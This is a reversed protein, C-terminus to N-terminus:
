RPESALVEVLIDRQVERAWGGADHVRGLEALQVFRVRGGRVKKDGRTRDLVRSPDMAGPLATPLEMAELIRGLRDATGPTTIGSAEGFRAELAMGIAVADGHPIEFESEAEVAHGITHGFNLIERLGSEKEDRSVVGAKIEVSRRVAWASADARGALLDSAKEHLGDLYDVDLIAGHKVAEALGQSRERRPLTELCEPDVVVRAPPHFAGVLNKGTPVDVGTKGGVSADIMAVLSTPVQVVPVGRLFTAAVFGALDGTVGGGLAVVLTDRGCGEGLLTDTLDAWTHRSKSAEGAPFLHLRQRAGVGDLAQLAAQGYIEGVNADAILAVTGSPPAFGAVLEGLRGLLGDAIVVDYDDRGDGAVVRITHAGARPGEGIGEPRQSGGTM